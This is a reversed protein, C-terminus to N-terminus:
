KMRLIVLRTLYIILGIGLLSLLIPIMMGLVETMVQPIQEATQIKPIEVQEVTQPAGQFVLDGKVFTGEIEKFDYIDHNANMTISILDPSGFGTSTGCTPYFTADDISFSSYDFINQTHLSSSNTYALVKDFKYFGSESYISIRDKSYCIPSKSLILNSRLIYKHGSSWGTPETFMLIFYYNYDIGYGSPLHFTFDMDLDDFHTVVPETNAFSSTGICSVLIIFLSLIIFLKNKLINKM